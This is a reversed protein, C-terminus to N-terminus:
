PNRLSQWQTLAIKYIFFSSTLDDVTRMDSRGSLTTVQREAGLVM